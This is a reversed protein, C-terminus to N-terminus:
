GSITFAFRSIEEEGLFLRVQYDGPEYGDENGFFFFSSGDAGQSWLYAQGQIPQNDRYLVRSWAVGDDMDQFSVFLYIRAIGSEFTTTPQIPTNNASIASDAATIRVMAGPQAPIGPAPPILQLVSDVTPTPTPTNTATPTHTAPPTETPVSTSTSTATSTATPQATVTPVTTATQTHTATPTDTLTVDLTPTDSPVIVGTLGSPRRNIFDDLGRFAIAALGSYFALAFTIAFMGVSILFLIGGRQSARRRIRWYPGRRGRRLQQLALVFLLLALLFVGVIVYPILTAIQQASM